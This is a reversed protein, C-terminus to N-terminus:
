VSYTELFDDYDRKDTTWIIVDYSEVNLRKLAEFRHNGDNLEFIKHHYNIILPPMDWGSQFREMIKKVNYEFHKEDIVYKLDKEPGCCRQFLSLPLLVPGIFYRKELKLGESFPLNDGEDHLFLHIWEEINNNKQYDLAKQLTSISSM